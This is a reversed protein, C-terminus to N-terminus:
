HYLLYNIIIIYIIILNINIIFLNFNLSIKFLIHQFDM